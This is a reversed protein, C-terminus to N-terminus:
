TRAPLWEQEQHSDAADPGRTPAYDRFALYMGIGLVLAIVVVLTALVVIGRRLSM